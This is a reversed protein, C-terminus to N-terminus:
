PAPPVANCLVNHGSSQGGVNDIDGQALGGLADTNIHEADRAVGLFEEAGHFCIAIAPDIPRKQFANRQNRADILEYEMHRCVMASKAIHISPFEQVLHRNDERNGIRRPVIM